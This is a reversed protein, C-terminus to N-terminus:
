CAARGEHTWMPRDFVPNVQPATASYPAPATATPEAKATDATEPQTGTYADGYSRRWHGRMSGSTLNERM